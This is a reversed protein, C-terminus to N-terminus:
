PADPDARTRQQSTRCAAVDIHPRRDLRARLRNTQGSVIASPQATFRWRASISRRWCRERTGAGSSQTKFDIALGADGTVALFRNTRERTGGAGLDPLDAVIAAEARSGPAFARLSHPHDLIAFTEALFRKRFKPTSVACQFIAARWARGNAWPSTPCIRWFARTRNLRACFRTATDGALPRNGRRGRRGKPRASLACAARAEEAGPSKGLRAPRRASACTRGAGGTAGDGTERVFDDGNAWRLEWRRPSQVCSHRVV